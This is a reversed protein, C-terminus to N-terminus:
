VPRSVASQAIPILEDIKQFIYKLLNSNEKRFMDLYIDSNNWNRYETDLFDCCAWYENHKMSITNNKIYEIAEKYKLSKKIESDDYDIGYILDSMNSSEFEFKINLYKLSANTNLFSFGSYRVNLNDDKQFKFARDQAVKKITDMFMSVIQRKYIPLADAIALAAKFSNESKGILEVVIMEEEMSIGGGIENEIARIFLELIARVSPARTKEIWSKILMKIDYNWSMLNCQEKELDMKIKNNGRKLSEDSPKAGYPTL